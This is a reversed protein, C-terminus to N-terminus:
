YIVHSRQKNICFCYWHSGNILTSLSLSLSLSISLYYRGSVAAQQLASSFLRYPAMKHSFFSRFLLAARRVPKAYFQTRSTSLKFRALLESLRSQNARFKEEAGGPWLLPLRKRCEVVWTSSWYGVEFYIEMESQSRQLIRHIQSSANWLPVEM